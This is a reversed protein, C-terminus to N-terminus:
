LESLFGDIKPCDIDQKIIYFAYKISNTFKLMWWKVLNIIFAKKYLKKYKITKKM